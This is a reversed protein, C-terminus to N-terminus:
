PKNVVKWREIGEFDWDADDAVNCNFENEYQKKTYYFYFVSPYTYESFAYKEMDKWLWRMESCTHYPYYKLGELHINRLYALCKTVLNSKYVLIDIERYIRLINNSIKQGCQREVNNFDPNKKVFDTIKQAIADIPLYGDYGKVTL